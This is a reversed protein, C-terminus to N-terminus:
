QLAEIVEAPSEPGCVELGGRHADLDQTLDARDHSGATGLEDKPVM